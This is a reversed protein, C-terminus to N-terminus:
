VSDCQDCQLDQNPMRSQPSWLPSPLHLTNGDDRFATNSWGASPPLTKSKKGMMEM